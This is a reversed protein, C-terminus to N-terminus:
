TVPDTNQRMVMTPVFTLWGLAHIAVIDLVLPLVCLNGFGSWM